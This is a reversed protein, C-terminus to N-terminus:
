APTNFVANLLLRITGTYGHLYFAVVVIAWGWMLLQYAHARCWELIGGDRM